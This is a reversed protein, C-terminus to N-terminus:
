RGGARRRPNPDRGNAADERANKIRAHKIRAAEIRDQPDHRRDPRVLPGRTVVIDGRLPTVSPRAPAVAGRVAPTATSRTAQAMAGTTLASGLVLLAILTKHTAKM